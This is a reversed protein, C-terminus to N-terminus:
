QKNFSKGRLRAATNKAVSMKRHVIKGSIKGLTKPALTTMLPRLLQKGNKPNGGM